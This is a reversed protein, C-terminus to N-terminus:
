LVVRSEHLYKPIYFLSWRICTYYKLFKLRWCAISSPVRISCSPAVHLPPFRAVARCRSLSTTEGVGLLSSLKTPAREKLHLSIWCAVRLVSFHIPSSDTTQGTPKSRFCNRAEPSTGRATAAGSESFCSEFECFGKYVTCWMYKITRCTHNFVQSSVAHQESKKSFKLIQCHVVRKQAELTDVRVLEVVM